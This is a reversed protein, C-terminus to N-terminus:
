IDPQGADNVVGALKAAHAIEGNIDEQTVTLNAQRLAQELLKHGIEISLVDQGHRAFAEKGLEEMSVQDGNVLAAVGPMQQSLKPDNHVPQIVASNQFEAFKKAAEDRLKGDRITEALSDKVSAFPMDRAPNMGECKLIAFQE